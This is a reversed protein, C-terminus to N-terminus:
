PAHLLSEYTILIWKDSYRLLVDALIGIIVEDILVGRHLGKTADGQHQKIPKVKIFDQGARAVM